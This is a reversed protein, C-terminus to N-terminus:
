VEETLRQVTERLRAIVRCRAVYVKGTSINLRKAADEISIGEVCTLWFAQWNSESFRERLQDAAWLFAQRRREYEFEHEEPSSSGSSHVESPAALNDLRRHFSTGGIPQPQIQRLRNLAHNRTITALWARFSPGSDSSHYSQISRSVKLLVEQAVESADADQFGRSKALRVILPQYIAYFEDWAAQDEASRLRVLLSHHTTPPNWTTM